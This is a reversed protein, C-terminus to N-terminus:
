PPLVPSFYSELWADRPLLSAFTPGIQTGTPVSADSVFTLRSANVGDGIHRKITWNTMVGGIWRVNTSISTPLKLMTLQGENIYVMRWDHTSGTRPTGAWNLYLGRTIPQNVKVGLVFRRNNDGIFAINTLPTTDAQVISIVIPSMKGAAVFDSENTQGYFVIQDVPNTIRLHPLNPHNLQIYLTRIYDRKYDFPPQPPMDGSNGTYDVMWYPGTASASKSYVDLMAFGSRAAAKERDMFHWLSNDTNLDNKVVNLVGKFRDTADASVPGTTTPAASLNSPLLKVTSGSSDTTTGLIDRANFTDHSQVYLSRTFFPLQMPSPTTRAFFSANDRIVTRGNVVWLATSSGSNVVEIQVSTYAPGSPKRFYTFLDGALVPPYTKMFLYSKFDDVGALTSPRNLHETTLYASMPRLGTYNYPFVTTMAGPTRTSTFINLAAWGDDTSVGGFNAGLIGSQNTLLSSGPEFGKELACQWAFQRSSEVALRRQVALDMFSVQASRTSMLTVWASLFMGTALMLLLAAAM